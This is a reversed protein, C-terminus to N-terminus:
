EGGLPFDLPNTMCRVSGGGKEFESVDALVTEVEQLEVMARVRSNTAAPMILSQGVRISNASFHSLAEEETLIIPNPVLDLLREASEPTFADPYILAADDTVPCFALDLHYAHTSITSLPVTGQGAFASLLDLAPAATRPGTGSVILDRWFFQDGAELYLSPGEPLFSVTFGNAEFWAAAPSTECKRQFHRMRSMFVRRHGSHSIGAYGLNMSFVMDPANPPPDRLVEVTAGHHEMTEKLNAWQDRAKAGDVSVEPDMYPNIKYVVDFHVPAVLLYSNGWSLPKAM